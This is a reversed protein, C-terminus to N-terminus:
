HGATAGQQHGAIIGMQVQGARLEVHQPFQPALLVTADLHWGAVAVLAPKIKPRGVRVQVNM